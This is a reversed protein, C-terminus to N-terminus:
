ANRVEEEKKWQDFDLIVITLNVKLMGPRTTEPNVQVTDIVFPYGLTTLRHLLGLIAPPPGMGELQMSALEKASARAPSERVPGLQIGGSTAAKQIAASAEAVLTAKSLKAPDIHFNEKLKEL